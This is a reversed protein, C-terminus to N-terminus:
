CSMVKKAIFIENQAFRRWFKNKSLTPDKSYFKKMIRQPVFWCMMAYIVNCRMSQLKQLHNKELMRVIYKDSFLYSKHTKGVYKYRAQFVDLNRLFFPLAASGSREYDAIIYGGPKLVRSLERFTKDVECYSLVCGVLLIVDFCDDVYPLNIVNAVVANKKGKLKSEALDVHFQIGKSYYERGGSGANLVKMSDTVCISDLEKEVFNAFYVPTLQGYVDNKDWAPTTEYFKKTERYSIM